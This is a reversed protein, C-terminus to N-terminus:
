RSDSDDEGLSRTSSLRCSAHCGDVQDSAMDEDNLPLDHEKFPEASRVTRM